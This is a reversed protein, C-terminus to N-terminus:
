LFHTLNLNMVHYAVRALHYMLRDLVCKNSKPLLDVMRICRLRENLEKVELFKM